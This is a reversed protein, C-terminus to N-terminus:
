GASPKAPVLPWYPYCRSLSPSCNSAIAPRACNAQKPTSFSTESACPPLRLRNCETPEGWEDGPNYEISAGRGARTDKGLNQGALFNSRLLLCVIEQGAM